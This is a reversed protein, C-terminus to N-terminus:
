TINEGNGRFHHLVLYVHIFTITKNLFSNSDNSGLELLILLVVFTEMVVSVSVIHVVMFVECEVM